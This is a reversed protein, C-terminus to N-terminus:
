TCPRLLTTGPKSAGLFTPDEQILSRVQTSQMPLRIRLRQVVLSARHSHKQNEQIQYRPTSNSPQIPHLKACMSQKDKQPAALCNEM